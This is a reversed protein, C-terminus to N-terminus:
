GRSRRRVYRGLGALAFLVSAATVPEPIAAGPPDGGPPTDGPFGPQDWSTGYQFWVDSIGTLEYGDPLGSLTFVVANKILEDGGATVKANGTLPDDGASTIGYQPGDPAVPGSLNPGGIIDDPGFAYGSSGIGQDASGLAAVNVDSRYAWEGAVDTPSPDTFLVTSGSPVVASLPTLALEQGLNFFVGSLVQSPVLVDDMEINTLTVALMGAAPIAFEVQASLPRITGEDDYSGTGQYIVGLASTPVSVAIVFAAALVIGVRPLRGRMICGRMLTLVDWKVIVKGDGNWETTSVGCHRSDRRCAMGEAFVLRRPKGHEVEGQAYMREQFTGPRM